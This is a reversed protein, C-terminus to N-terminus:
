AFSINNWVFCVNAFSRRSVRTAYLERLANTFARESFATETFSGHPATFAPGSAGERFALDAVIVTSPFLIYM